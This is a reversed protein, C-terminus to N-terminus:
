RQTRWAIDRDNMREVGRVLRYSTRFSARTRLVAILIVQSGAQLAIMGTFGIVDMLLVTLLVTYAQALLIARVATGPPHLNRLFWHHLHTRDPSFPSRGRRIRGLFVRLTDMVIGMFAAAVVGAVMPYHETASSADQVISIGSVALVYGIPLSGGDGMFIRAPNWNYFLFGLAAGGLALLLHMRDGLGIFVMTGVLVLTISMTLSGSLGDIGDVLNFANTLGVIVLVTLPYQVPVPLDHVGMFGGLDTIRTGSWAILTALLIEVAFRIAPTVGKRDDFVGIIALLIMGGLETAHFATFARGGPALLLAVLLVIMIAIGGTSPVPSRHWKRGDPLDYWGVRESLQLIAPILVLCLVLSFLAIPLAHLFDM